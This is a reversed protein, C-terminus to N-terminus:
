GDLLGWDTSKEKHNLEGAIKQKSIIKGISGKPPSGQSLDMTCQFFFLNYVLLVSDFVFLTRAKTRKPPCPWISLFISPSSRVQWVHGASSTVKWYPVFWHHSGAHGLQKCWRSDCQCCVLLMPRAAHFLHWCWQAHVLFGTPPCQEAFKM